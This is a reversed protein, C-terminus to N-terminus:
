RTPVSAFFSLSNKNSQKILSYHNKERIGWFALIFIDVFYVGMILSNKINEYTCNLGIKIKVRERLSKDSVENLILPHKPPVTIINEAGATPTTTQEM